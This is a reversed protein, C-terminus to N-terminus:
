LSKLMRKAEALGLFSKEAERFEKTHVCRRAGRHEAPHRLHLMEHYMVYEVALQPVNEHDLISSLIIAHHSPDYHGLLTRSRTRSWGLQPRAMLGHFYQFNLKEFIEELNYHQGQPGSVHKRGRERRVAHLHQRMDARNLFRRYRYNYLEPIQKRYLKGLLIYALAELVTAPAGDFVDSLRITLRSGALRINANANAYRKFELAIEPLPTRPKLARFVRAFIVEPENHIEFAAAAGDVPM